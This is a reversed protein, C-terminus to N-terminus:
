ANFVDVEKDQLNYKSSKIDEYCLKKEYSIM